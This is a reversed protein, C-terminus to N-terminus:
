WIKDVQEDDVVMNNDDSAEGFDRECDQCYMTMDGPKFGGSPPVKGMANDHACEIAQESDVAPEPESTFPTQGNKLAKYGDSWEEWLEAWTTGGEFDVPTAPGSVQAALMATLGNWAQAKAIRINLPIEIPEQAFKLSLRHAHGQAGHHLYYIRFSFNM